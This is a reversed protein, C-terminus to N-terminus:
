IKMGGGVTKDGAPMFLPQIIHLAKLVTKCQQASLGALMEALSAQTSTRAKDLVEQGASTLRLAIRRRDMGSPQRRVLAHAVLGDVIKSLSPSTLGLHRALGQLSVGPHRELFMLTRFLPMTLDAARHSRMEARITRMIVPVVELIERAVAETSTDM